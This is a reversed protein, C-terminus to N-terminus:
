RPGNWLGSTNGGWHNWVWTREPHHYFTHGAEILRNWGGYDECKFWGDGVKKPTPFGGVDLLAQTRVLVTIPIYNSKKFAELNFPQLGGPLLDSVQNGNRDHIEHWPYILDAGSSNAAGICAELHQPFLLDDDDLFATWETHVQTLAKNRMVGHGEGTFDTIVNINAPSVTQECVSQLAKPLTLNLRPPITCVVVTVDRETVM